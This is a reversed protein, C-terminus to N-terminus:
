KIQEGKTLIPGLIGYAGMKQLLHRFLALYLPM